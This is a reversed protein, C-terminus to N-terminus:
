AFAEDRVVSPSSSRAVRLFFEQNELYSHKQPLHQPPETHPRTQPLQLLDGPLFASLSSSFFFSMRGEWGNMQKFPNNLIEAKPCATVYMEVPQGTFTIAQRTSSWHKHRLRWPRKPTPTHNPTYHLTQLFGRVPLMALLLFPLTLRACWRLSVVHCLCKANRLKAQWSIPRGSNLLSFCECVCASLLPPPENANLSMRLCVCVGVTCVYVRM